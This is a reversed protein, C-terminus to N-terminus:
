FNDPLLGELVLYILWRYFGKLNRFVANQQVGIYCNMVVRWGILFV